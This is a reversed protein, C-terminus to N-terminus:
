FEPEDPYNATARDPWIPVLDPHPPPTCVHTALIRTPQTHHAISTQTRSKLQKIRSGPITQYIHRQQLRALLETRTDLFQPDLRTTLGDIVATWTPAQCQPCTSPTPTTNQFGPHTYNRSVSTGDHPKRGWSAVVTPTVTTSGDHVVTVVTPEQGHQRHIVDDSSTM